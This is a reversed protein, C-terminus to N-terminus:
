RDDFLLLLEIGGVERPQAITVQLEPLPGDCDPGIQDDKGFRDERRVDQALLTEGRLKFPKRLIGPPLDEDPGPIM